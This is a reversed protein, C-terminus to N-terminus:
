EGHAQDKRILDVPYGTIRDIGREATRDEARMM